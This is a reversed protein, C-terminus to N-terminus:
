NFKNKFEQTIRADNRVIKVGQYYHKLIKEYDWGQKAYENAGYQSMGVGHGYGYCVIKINGNDLLYIDFNGSKLGLKSRLQNGNHVENGVIIEKNYGTFNKNVINFEEFSEIGLRKCFEEQTYELIQPEVKEPTDVSKLYPYRNNDSNWVDNPTNTQNHGYAFFIPTSIMKGDYFLVESGTEEVAQRFRNLQEQTFKSKKNEDALVFCCTTGCLDFGQGEHKKNSLAFTRIAVAQAKYAEIDFSPYGMEAILGNYVIEELNMKGYGDVYLFVEQKVEKKEPILTNNRYIENPNFIQVAKVPANAGILLLGTLLLKKLKM